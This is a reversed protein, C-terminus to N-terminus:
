GSAACLVVWWVGVLGRVRQGVLLESSGGVALPRLSALRSAPADALRLM